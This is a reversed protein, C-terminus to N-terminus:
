VSCPDSMSMNDPPQFEPAIGDVRLELVLPKFASLEHQHRPNAFELSM